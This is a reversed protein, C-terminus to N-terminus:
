LFTSPISKRIIWEDYSGFVSCLGDRASVGISVNEGGYYGDKTTIWIAGNAALPGLKALQLPDKIIEISEISSIDLGALMNAAAGIPNIDFQKIDYVYSNELMLPVGNLYVTPQVGSVDKNSFVPSSLGRVLMSQITGPEGNNEQVYVGAVNGKLLQQISLFQSRQLMRIDVTDSM